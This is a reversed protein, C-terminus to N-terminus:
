GDHYEGQNSKDILPVLHLFEVLSNLGTITTKEIIAHGNILPPIIFQVLYATEEFVGVVLEV